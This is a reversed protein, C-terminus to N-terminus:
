PRDGLDVDEYIGAIAGDYGVSNFRVVDGPGYRTLIWQGQPTREFCEVRQQKQSVLVYEQLSSLESYDAFKDGRDKAETTESLVEVILKPFELCYEARRDRDDCTVVLDPYYFRHRRAIYVKMDSFLVRCGSGRLRDRILAYLNGTILIHSASAGAMAEVEGDLYEHKIPSHREAELYEEVTLRHRDPESIM